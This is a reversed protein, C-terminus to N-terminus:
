KAKRRTAVGTLFVLIYNYFIYTVNEIQVDIM